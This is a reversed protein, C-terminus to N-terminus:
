DLIALEQPELKGEFVEQLLFRVQDSHWLSKQTMEKLKKANEDNQLAVIRGYWYANRQILSVYLRTEKFPILEAFLLRNETPYREQWRRVNLGGANYSALALEVKGEFQKMVKTLYQTGLRINTAPHFLEQPTIKELARATAPMLQMLGRAGAPSLAEKQFVSEQRILALILTPDVEGAHEFIENLYPKPFYAKMYNLDLKAESDNMYRVLQLISELYRDSKAYIFGVLAHEQATQPIFRKKVLEAWKELAEKDKEGEFYHYVQAIMHVIHNEKWEKKWDKNEQSNQLIIKMPDKKREHQSLITHFGFPSDKKKKKWYHSQQQHNLRGLWYLTRYKEPTEKAKLALELSKLAEEKQDFLLHIFAMRQNLIEYSESSSPLCKLTNQYLKWLEEYVLPDPLYAEGRIWLASGVEAFSCRSPHSIFSKSLKIFQEPSSLSVASVAKSFSINGLSYHLHKPDSIKPYKKLDKGENKYNSVFSSRYSDLFAGFCEINEPTGQYLTIKKELCKEDWLNMMLQVKLRGYAQHESSSYGRLLDEKLLPSPSPLSAPPPPTEKKEEELVIEELPESSPHLGKTQHLELQFSSDNLSSNCGLCLYSFALGALRTGTNKKM